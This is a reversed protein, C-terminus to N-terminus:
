FCGLAWHLLGESVLPFEWMTFGTMGRNKDTDISEGFKDSQDRHSLSSNFSSNLRKFSTYKRAKQHRSEQRPYHLTKDRPLELLETELQPDFM